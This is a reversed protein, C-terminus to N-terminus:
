KIILGVGAVVFLGILVPTHDITPYLIATWSMTSMLALMWLQNPGHWLLVQDHWPRQPTLCFILFWLRKRNLGRYHLLIALLGGLALPAYLLPLFGDYSDVQALWRTPWGPDALWTLALFLSTYVIQRWRVNALFIGMGLQPKIPALWTLKPVMLIALFLIGWQAYIVNYWFPWSALVWLKALNGSQVIGYVLVSTSLAVMGAGVIDLPLWCAFPLLVLITTMPNSPWGNTPYDYPPQGAWWLQASGYALWLDNTQWGQTLRTSGVILGITLAFLLKKIM